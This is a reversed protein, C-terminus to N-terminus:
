GPPGWLLEDLSRRWGYRDLDVRGGACDVGEERLREVQLTYAESDPPFALRGSATVVRHWPLEDGSRSLLRGVLRARRPLGAMAAVEGYSSVRGAPITLVVRFIAQESTTM